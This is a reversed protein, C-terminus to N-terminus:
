CVVTLARRTCALASVTIFVLLLGAIGATYVSWGEIYTLLLPADNFCIACFVAITCSALMLFLSNNVVDFPADIM